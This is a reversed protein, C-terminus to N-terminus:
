FLAARALGPFSPKEFDRQTLLIEGDKHMVFVEVVGQYLGPPIEEGRILDIGSLTGDAKYADWVEM